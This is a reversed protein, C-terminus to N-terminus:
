PAIDPPSLEEIIQDAWATVNQAFKEMEALYLQKESDLQAKPKPFTTKNNDRIKQLERDLDTRFKTYEALLQSTTDLEISATYIASYIDCDVKAIDNQVSKYVSQSGTHQGTKILHKWQDIADAAQAKGAELYDFILIAAEDSGKSILTHAIKGVEPLLAERISSSLTDLWVPLKPKSEPNKMIRSVKEAILKRAYRVQVAPDLNLSKM